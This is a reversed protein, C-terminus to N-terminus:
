PTMTDDPDCSVQSRPSGGSLPLQSEGWFGFALLMGETRLKFYPLVTYWAGSTPFHNFMVRTASREVIAPLKREVCMYKNAKFHFLQPL